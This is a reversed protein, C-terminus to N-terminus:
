NSADEGGHPSGGDDGGAGPLLSEWRYVLQSQAVATGTSVELAVLMYHVEQRMGIAM